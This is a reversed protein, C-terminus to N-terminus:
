ARRQTLHLRRVGRVFAQADGGTAAYRLQLYADFLPELGPRWEAHLRLVRRAYALPGESGYRAAGARALKHNLLRWGAQVPDRQLLWLRRLPNWALLLVVAAVAAAMLGTLQRWDADELGFSQMLYHQRTKDYGLIWHNWGHVMRDLLLRADRLWTVDTRLMLPLSARDRVAAQIGQLIRQPAVAATPDVRKWGHGEIWVEAWAHADSQRVILYGGQPNQQGGQYGTVVRAPLGAARMLFVFSGAYHECFGQRTKFLFDDVPAEEGTLPPTLTYFFPQQNFHSLASAVIAEPKGDAELAWSEALLRAQPNGSAPLQLGQRHDRDTLQTGRLAPASEMRYQLRNLVPRLAFLQFDATSAGDPPQIVPLDVAFLWRQGHPELILNYRYVEFDKDNTGMQAPEPRYDRGPTWSLGDYHWFVPGRWYLDQQRPLSGQFEARFAVADSQSLESIMGPSMSDSLGTLGSAADKPLGWLPGQVRPFFVFLVLMLPVAPLLLDRARRLNFRLRASGMRDALTVLTATILLSGAFVYVAVLPAQSSFFNAAMLFYGAFVLLLADRRARMELLKFFALLVLLATGPQLGLLTRYRYVILAVGGLTLALLLWRNPLPRGQRALQWRWVALLLCLGTEWWPLVLWHPAAVILLSALVWNTQRGTLEIVPTPRTHLWRM